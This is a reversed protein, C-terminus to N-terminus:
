GLVERFSEDLIDMAEKLEEDTIVLPVLVRIVNGYIGAKLLVLGKSMAKSIVATTTDADPEKSGRDKVLEMAVMGGLGRVDGIREYKKQLEQFHSKIYEGIKASRDLLNDREIVDLVTNAAACAVPNGVYTGGIESDGPADMVEARGVVGSLPLGAAISKAVTILDPELGFHESAFFKGTRGFGAQVEDVIFTIGYKRAIDQVRPLFEPPPVVFGGEGQVPEVIIGAVEEPAVQVRFARELSEACVVNCSPYTKNWPCRYCYAYPVRYVDPAFPGMGAKYPHTKSTLSLAMLTRGHFAGEFAIMAHRKTHKKAIKVANEVAEAGSNFFAAKKPGKGPMKEGLRRALTILSEYPIVTFDTHLFRDVQEHITKNVEPHTHGVNLVGVGGSFDIFVNGDVDTVIAGHAHDIVFPAHVQFARAVYQDKEQLLKASRPGPLPTSVHAVM